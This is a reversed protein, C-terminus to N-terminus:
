PNRGVKEPKKRTEEKAPEIPESLVYIALAAILVEIAWTLFASLLLSLPVLLIMTAVVCLAQWLEIKRPFM